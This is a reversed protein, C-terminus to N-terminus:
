KCSAVKQNPKGEVLVWTQNKKLSEFEKIMEILWKMSENKNIAEQYSLPESEEYEM